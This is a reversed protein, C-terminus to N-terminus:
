LIVPTWDVRSKEAKIISLVQEVTEELAYEHNIVVYDFEVIRQLANRVQEDLEASQARVLSSSLASALALFSFNDAAAASTRGQADACANAGQNDPSGAETANLM